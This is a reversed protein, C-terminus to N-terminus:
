GHDCELYRETKEEEADHYILRLSPCDVNDHKETSQNTYREKEEDYKLAACRNLCYQVPLSPDEVLTDWWLRYQRHTITM